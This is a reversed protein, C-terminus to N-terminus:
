CLSHKLDNMISEYKKGRAAISVQRDTDSQLAFSVLMYEDFCEAFKLGWEILVIAKDFYDSLGLDHFAEVTPIRYLDIHLLDFHDARYFHAIGFTPSTVADAVNLSEAFGKVFHTKGAGLDGDLVILDGPRFFHALKGAINRTCADSESVIQFENIM